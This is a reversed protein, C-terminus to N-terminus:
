YMHNCKQIYIGTGHSHNHTNIFNPCDPLKKLTMLSYLSQFQLTFILVEVEVMQINDCKFMEVNSNKMM